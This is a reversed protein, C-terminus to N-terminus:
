SGGHNKQKMGPTFTRKFDYKSDYFNRPERNRIRKSIEDAFMECLAQDSNINPNKKKFELFERSQQYIGFELQNDM